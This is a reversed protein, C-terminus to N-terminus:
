EPPRPWNPLVWTILYEPPPPWLLYVDVWKNWYVLNHDDYGLDIRRALIASGMDLADGYGYEPIYVKSRLPIIRPDVAVIGRRMRDGTFTHGYYPKDSSVGATSASYSTAAMRIKRWYTFQDGSPSTFVKPEIKQGYAIVREAPEQAIWRDELVRKVEQGDEYWVRYRGRTIGEAGPTAAQQTDLPLTPDAEFITEFPTIEEAVKVEERVRIIEIRIGEYLEAELPPSVRDLGAVGIKMTALADAVTRAQTRTKIEQGDVRLNIAQSRQITVRLGTSVEDGLDPQVRDGLYITIEAQRLAEGVTQATTRVTFPLGGDDVTIPIAREVRLQLPSIQVSDWAHGRDYTPAIVAVSSQPLPDTLGIPKGDLLVRDYKDVLLGADALVAQPTDGWSGIRIDRGDAVIRVPRAREVRVEMNHILKSAPAVRDNAQVTLGLDLLLGTVTHRHTRVTEQAGDVMVTVRRAAVQWLAWLLLAAVVVGAWEPVGALRSLSIGKVKRRKLVVISM